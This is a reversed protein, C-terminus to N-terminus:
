SHHGYVIQTCDPLIFVFEAREVMLKGTKTVHLVFGKWLVHTVLSM